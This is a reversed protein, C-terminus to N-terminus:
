YHIVCHCFRHYCSARATCSTCGLPATDTAINAVMTHCCGCAIERSLELSIDLQCKTRKVAVAYRDRSNTPERGTFTIAKFAALKSMHQWKIVCSVSLGYFFKRSARFCLFKAASFKVCLINSCSFKVM